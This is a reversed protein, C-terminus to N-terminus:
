VVSACLHWSSYILDENDLMSATLTREQLLTLHVFIKVNNGSNESAEPLEAFGNTRDLM